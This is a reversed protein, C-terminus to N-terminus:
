ELRKFEAEQRTFWGMWKERGNYSNEISEVLFKGDFEQHLLHMINGHMRVREKARKCKPIIEVKEAEERWRKNIVNTMDIKRFHIADTEKDSYCWLPPEDIYVSQFLRDSEVRQEPTLEKSFQKYTKM